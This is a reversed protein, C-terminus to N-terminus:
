RLRNMVVEERQTLNKIQQWQCVNKKVQYMGQKAERWVKNWEEMIVNMVVPNWDRYYLLIYEDRRMAAAAALRDSRENGPIGIHSPIWSLVIEKNMNKVKQIDHQLRRCIPHKNRINMLARLVTCSDSMVVFKTREMEVKEGGHKDRASGCLLCIGGKAVVGYM